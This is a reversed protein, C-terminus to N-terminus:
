KRTVGWWRFFRHLLGQNAEDIGLARRLSREYNAVIEHRAAEGWGNCNMRHATEMAAIIEEVKIKKSM